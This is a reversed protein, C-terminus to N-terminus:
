ESRGGPHRALYARAHEVRGIGADSDTAVQTVLRYYEMAKAANGSREAANGAGSLTYLRNPSAGLVAEYAVLAEAPRGAEVLMDGLLDGAPLVEGPTVAEKDATAEIEAARRMTAIAEDTKKEAFQIWARAALLQTEAQAAWYSARNAGALEARM